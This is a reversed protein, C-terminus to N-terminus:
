ATRAPLPATKKPWRGRWKWWFVRGTHKFTRPVVICAIRPWSVNTILYTRGKKTKLVDGPKPHEGLWYRARLMVPSGVPKVADGEQVLDGVGM